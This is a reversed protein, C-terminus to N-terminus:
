HFMDGGDVVITQGSIFDSEESALFLVTGVLDEPYEMRKISRTASTSEFREKPIKSFGTFTLGPAVANANINHAGMERALARTFGVVGAKSTIYHLRGAGGKWVQSSAINIIKGKGRKIMNPAVAKVCLFLGRLNIQMVKDWEEATIENWPKLELDGYLAANNVLIDIGGFAEVARKAMNLTSEEVSVDTKVAIAEGEKSKIEEATKSANDFDVDAM